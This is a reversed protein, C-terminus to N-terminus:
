HGALPVLSLQDHVLNEVPHDGPTSRIACTLLWM